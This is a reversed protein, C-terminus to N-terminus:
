VERERQAFWLEALAEAANENEAFNAYLNEYARLKGSICELKADGLERLIDTATPAFVMPNKLDSYNHLHPQMLINSDEDDQWVAM